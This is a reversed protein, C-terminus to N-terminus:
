TNSVVVDAEAAAAEEGAGCTADVVDDVNDDVENDDVDDDGSDDVDDASPCKSM